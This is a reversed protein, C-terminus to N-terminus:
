LVCTSWDHGYMDPSETQTQSDTQSSVLSIGKNASTHTWWISTRKCCCRIRYIAKTIWRYDFFNLLRVLLGFGKHFVFKAKHRNCKIEFYHVNEENKESLFNPLSKQQKKVAVSLSTVSYSKSEWSHYNITTITINWMSSFLVKVECHNWLVCGYYLFENKISRSSVKELARGTHLM